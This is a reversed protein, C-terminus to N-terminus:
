CCQIRGSGTCLSCHGSGPITCPVDEVSAIDAEAFKGSSYLPGAPNGEGADTRWQSIQDNEQLDM